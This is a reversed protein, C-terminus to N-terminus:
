RSTGTRTGSCSTRPIACDPTSSPRPRLALVHRLLEAAAAPVPELGARSAYDDRNGFFQMTRTSSASSSAPSPSSRSLIRSPTRSCSTTPTSPCSTAGAHARWAPTGPAARVATSPCAYSRSATAPRSSTSCRSRRADRRAITWSSRRSRRTTRARRDFRAREPLWRGHEFCPIVISVLPQDGLSADLSVALAAPGPACGDLTATARLSGSRPRRRRRREERQEAIAAYLEGHRDAMERLGFGARVRERAAAGIRCGRRIRWSSRSRRSTRRWM